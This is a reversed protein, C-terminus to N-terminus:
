AAVEARAIETAVAKTPRKYFGFHDDDNSREVQADFQVKTGKFEGVQIWDYDSDKLAWVADEISRPVTGWLRNGNDLEILMKHQTGYMSEQYKTSIITGTVTYRGNEIAPADALAADRAAQREAREAVDRQIKFVLEIQKESLSGWRWLKAAIDQVIYHDTELAEALGPNESLQKEADAHAAARREAALRAQRSRYAAKGIRKAVGWTEACIGGIAIADTGNVLVIAGHYFGTGCAACGYENRHFKVDEWDLGRAELEKRTVREESAYWRQEDESPGQYFVGLFETNALDVNKLTYPNTIVSM